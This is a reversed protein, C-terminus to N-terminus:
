RGRGIGTTGIPESWNTVMASGEPALRVSLDTPLCAEEGKGTYKRLRGRRWPKRKQSPVKGLMGRKSMGKEVGIEAPFVLVM